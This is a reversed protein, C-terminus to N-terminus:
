GHALPQALAQELARLLQKKAGRVKKAEVWARDEASSGALMHLALGGVGPARAGVDKLPQWAAECLTRLARARAAADITDDSWAWWMLGLLVGQSLPGLRALVGPRATVMAWETRGSSHEFDALRLLLWERWAAAHAAPLARQHTALAQHWRQTPRSAVGEAMWALAPQMAERMPADLRDWAALAREGWDDADFCRTLRNTAADRLLWHRLVGVAAKDDGSLRQEPYEALRREIEEKSVTEEPPDLQPAHLVDHLPHSPDRAAEFDADSAADDARWRQVAERSFATLWDRVAPKLAELHVRAQTDLWAVLAAFPWRFRGTVLELDFRSCLRACTRLVAECTSQSPADITPLLARVLATVSEDLMFENREPMSVTARRSAAAGRQALVIAGSPLDTLPAPDNRWRARHEDIWAKALLQPDHGQLAIASRLAQAQTEHAADEDREAQEQKQQWASPERPLPVTPLASLDVPWQGLWQRTKDLGDATWREYAGRRQEILRAAGDFDSLVVAAALQADIDGLVTGFVADRLAQLSDHRALWALGPGLMLTELRAALVPLDVSPGVDHGDSIARQAAPAADDLRELRERCQGAAADPTQTHELMWERGPRRALVEIVAPFQLALNVYCTGSPGTNWKGSQLNVIHWCRQVGEGQEAVLTRGKRAFGHPALARALSAALWDIKKGASDSADPIKVTKAM